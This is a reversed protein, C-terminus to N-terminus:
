RREFYRLQGRVSTGEVYLLGFSPRKQTRPDTCSGPNFLLVGDRQECMPIHSHGFVVCPVSEDEFIRLARNATTAGRGLHGHTVGIRVQEIEVIIRADLCRTITDPDCNGYVAHVPAIDALPKIVDLTCLDGAHLILDVGQFARLVAPPIKHASSTIHTDSLVGITKM